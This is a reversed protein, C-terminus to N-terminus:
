AGIAEWLGSLAAASAEPGFRAVVDARAKAGIAARGDPGLAALSRIRDALEAQTAYTAGNRGAEVIASRNANPAAVPVAGCAMGELLTLPPEVAVPATFPLLLVDAASYVLAKREEDLDELAVTARVGEAAAAARVNTEVWDENYAHTRHPVYAHLVLDPVDAAAERLAGM